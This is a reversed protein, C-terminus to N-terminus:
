RQEKRIWVAVDRAIAPTELRLPQGSEIRVRTEKLRKSEYTDWWTASYSGASLGPVVITGKVEDPSDPRRYLWCVAYDNKSKGIVGLAPAYPSLEISNLLAWDRGSNCLTVTHKGAPVKAKLTADLRTNVEARPVEREDCSVGDVSLSVRAGNRSVSGINVKFEGAGPYDVLFTYNTPFEKHGAGHLMTQMEELGPVDGDPQVTLTARNGIGWGAPPAFRLTGRASTQVTTSLTRMEGAAPMGSRKLFESAAQFHSYLDHRHVTSWEWYQAAGAMQTMLGAWLAPHLFSGDDKGLGMSGMPAPGMEGIFFPKDLKRNGLAAIGALPEPPYTHAQYYDMAPWIDLALDSSTTILHHYRDHRRLFAAMESHWRTVAEPQTRVADVYQVENFLEWAMIAPSYGWRAVIYRYKTRTLAQAQEDTFFEAASDLWGGNAKNWPHSRWNSDTHTSYQGHHQLVMQLYIGQQEATEIIADWKRAADLSLDGVRWRKRTEWDLNKQDFHTMWVRSWNAGAQGLRTLYGPVDLTRTSWGVNCGFPYYAEGDDFVFRTGDKPEVRVFGPAPKGSVVFERRDIHRPSVNTGNLIVAELLYRGPRDPTLRVRWTSGDDFFAPVAVRRKDPCSFRVQVDNELYNFPNGKLQPLDFSAELRSYTGPAHAASATACGLWPLLLVLIFVQPRLWDSPVRKM